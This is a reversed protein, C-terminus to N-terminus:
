ALKLQPRRSKVGASICKFIIRFSPLLHFHAHTNRVSVGIPYPFHYPPPYEQWPHVVRQRICIQMIAASNWFSALCEQYVLYFVTGAMKTCLKHQAYCGRCSTPLLLQTNKVQEVSHEKQPRILNRIRAIIESIKILGVKEV